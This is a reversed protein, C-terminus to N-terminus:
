INNILKWYRSAIIDWNFNDRLSFNTIGIKRLYMKQNYIDNLIRKLDRNTNFFYGNIGEKIIDDAVGVHRTLICRGMVFPEVICLGFTESNSSVVGINCKNYYEIVQNQMCYGPFLIQEQIGLDKALKKMSCLLPGNGLLYLNSKKDNNEKVFESFTRILVDQNKGDRFTASFVIQLSDVPCDRYKNKFFLESVGLPLIKIKYNLLKFKKTLFGSTCIIMDSFCFLAIGMLIRMVFSQLPKHNRYSHITYIIKLPHKFLLKFKVVNIIALQWNTQVHVVKIDNDVVYKSLIDVHDKFNKHYELGYLVLVPISAEKLSNILNPEQEKTSSVAFVNKNYRYIAKIQEVLLAGVGNNLGSDVFFLVNM